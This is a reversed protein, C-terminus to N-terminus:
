KNRGLMEDMMINVGINKKIKKKFINNPDDKEADEDTAYEQLGALKYDARERAFQKNSPMQSFDIDNHTFLHGHTREVLFQVIRDTVQNGNLHIARISKSRRLTPGIHWM